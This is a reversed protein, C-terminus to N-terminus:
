TKFYGPKTPFDQFLDVLTKAHILSLSMVSELCSNGPSYKLIKWSCVCFHCFSVSSFRSERWKIKWVIDDKSRFGRGLSSLPFLVWCFWCIILAFIIICFFVVLFLLIWWMFWTGLISIEKDTELLCM